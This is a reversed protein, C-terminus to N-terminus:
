YWNVWHIKKFSADYRVMCVWILSDFNIGQAFIFVEDSNANNSPKDFTDETGLKMWSKKWNGRRLQYIKKVQEMWIWIMYVFTIPLNPVPNPHLFVESNVFFYIFVFTIIQTEKMKFEFLMCLCFSLLWRSLRVHFKM